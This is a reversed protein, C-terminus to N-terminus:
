HFRSYMQNLTLFRLGSTSAIGSTVVDATFSRKRVRERRAFEPTLVLSTVYPLPTALNGLSECSLAISSSESLMRLLIASIRIDRQAVEEKQSGAHSEQNRKSELPAARLGRNFLLRSFAPVRRIQGLLGNKRFRIVM